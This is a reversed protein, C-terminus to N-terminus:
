KSRSSTRLRRPRPAARATPGAPGAFLGIVCTEAVLLKLDDLFKLGLPSTLAALNFWCIRGSASFAHGAPPFAIGGTPWGHSLYALRFVVDKRKPAAAAGAGAAPPAFFDPYAAKVGACIERAHTLIDPYYTLPRVGLHVSGDPAVDLFGFRAGLREAESKFENDNLIDYVSKKSGVRALTAADPPDYASEKYLESM